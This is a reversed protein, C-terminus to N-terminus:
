KKGLPPLTEVVLTKGGRVEVMFSERDIDGKDDFCVDMLVGPYQKASFCAGRIAAAAAKRDLKGAKEIAAKLVHVATYGKVGNHDSVTNYAAQFRKGFDQLPPAEVTLGVHAVSGNAAEGALEVVKASTLVTEGVVPLRWGQKRLERLLRAAEEENTYVFLTDANAQKAQIVAASFDVQGSETSIEAVIRTPTNALLDKLTAQGGKGFDNNVYILALRQSKQTLYRALKPFAITQGFSTRFVYPNGQQTIAAAEGGTFNPVEARRSEAMSVMISGSFVPGFIAFVDNDVAKQTLGKAVGPNSQTDETTHAIRRGLIGGAANIEKIAMEVGNKFMTGSTTGPGSLEVINAIKIDQAQVATAALGIGGVLCAVVRMTM